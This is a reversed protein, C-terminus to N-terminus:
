LGRARDARCVGSGSQARVFGPCYMLTKTPSGPAADRARTSDGAQRHQQAIKVEHQRDPHRGVDHRLSGAHAPHELDAPRRLVDLVAAYTCADICRTMPSTAGNRSPCSRAARGPTRRNRLEADDLPEAGPEFGAATTGAAPGITSCASQHRQFIGTSSDYKM